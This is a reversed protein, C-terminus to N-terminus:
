GAAGSPPCPSRCAASGCPACRRSCSGRRPRLAPRCPAGHRRRGDRLLIQGIGPVRQQAEQAARAEAERQEERHHEAERGRAEREHEPERGGAREVPLRVRRQAGVREAQHFAPALAPGARDRVRDGLPEGGIDLVMRDVHQDIRAPLAHGAVEVAPRGARARPRVTGPGEGHDPALSRRYLRPEIRHVEAFVPQDDPAVDLLLLPQAVRQRLADGPGRGGGAQERQDAGGHEAARQRVPQPGRRARRLRDGGAVQRPPDRGRAAVVLEVPQPLAHVGHEVADVPQHLAHAADRIGDRVVQARRDRARAGLELFRERSGLIRGRQAPRHLLRDGVEVVDRADEARQQADRFGFGARPAGGEGPDVKRGHQGVDRFEVAHHRLAAPLFEGRVQGLPEVHHAVPVQQGLRDAVQEVVRQLERRRPPPHPERCPGERPFPDLDRHLVAARAQRGLVARPRPFAEEARIGRAARRARPEAKREHPRHRVQMAAVQGQAIGFRAARLGAAPPAAGRRPIFRGDDRRWAPM